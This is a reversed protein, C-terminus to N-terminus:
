HNGRRQHRSRRGSPGPAAGRRQRRPAPQWSLSPYVKIFNVGLAKFRRVYDRADRENTILLSGRDGWYPREGEFLEGAYFYRPLAAGTHESRDQLATLQDLNYGTDRVSTIGYGIFAEPNADGTHAHFDFLGPIAYRGRADLVQAGPPAGRAADDGIRLIRGDKLLLSTERGFGGAKFDLLRVHLILTTPPVASPLMLRVSWNAGRREPSRSSGCEHDSQTFSM